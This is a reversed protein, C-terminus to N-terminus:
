MKNINLSKVNKELLDFTNAKEEPKKYFYFEGKDTKKNFIKEKTINNSRLFGELAKEPANINPGRIEESKKTVEKMFDRIM